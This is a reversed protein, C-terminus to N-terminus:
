SLFPCRVSTPIRARKRNKGSAAVSLPRYTAATTTAPRADVVAALWSGLAGVVVAGGAHHVGM